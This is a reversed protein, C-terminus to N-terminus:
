VVKLNIEEGGWVRSIVVDCKMPVNLGAVSIMLEKVLKAAEAANKEPVEGILEDHVDLLLGYGLKNLKDCTDIAVIAAKKMDAASGQVESNVCQRKADELRKTNDVITIGMKEYVDDIVRRRDNYWRCRNLRRLISDREAYTIERETVESEFDLPDFNDNKENSAFMVFQELQMDQLRRKRGWLTEVYGQRMAKAQTENMYIRVKPYKRFFSEFMDEAEYKTINLDKAISPIEKSYMIGLVIAKIKGRIKKGEKNPTGDDYKESCEEFTKHFVGTAIESYIDRGTFYAKALEEDGSLHALIRPEQQSYDCGILVYGDRAKFMTRIEDNKAPINQMNPEKSSTRGTVAGIQNYTTHINKTTPNQIEPMKDIYTNLLKEVERVDLLRRAVECIKPEKGELKKVILNCTPEDTSRPKKKNVAEIKLIDYFLIALQTPSSINIPSQLKSLGKQRSQYDDILENFPQLSKYFATKVVELQKHYKISFEKNRALDLGVGREEMRALANICPREVHEWLKRVSKLNERALIGEQFKYLEYTMKADRAAYLIATSIPVIDFMLGEFLEGFSYGGVDSNIYKQHLPKLSKSPENENLLWAMLQTDWFADFMVGCFGKIFRIDFKANHWVTKINDDKWKQLIPSLEAKGLQGEVRKGTFYSIHSIPIYAAKRNPTYVCIGVVRNLLPDLGTTETDIAVIGNKLVEKSFAKLNKETQILEFEDRFKGLKADVVACAATIKKIANNGALAGGVRVVNNKQIVKTKEIKSNDFLRSTRTPKLKM